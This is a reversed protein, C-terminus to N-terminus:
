EGEKERLAQKRLKFKQPKGSQARPFDKVLRVESPIMHSELGARCYALVEEENLHKESEPIVFAWVNEGGVEAPVGVVSAEQIRTHECLYAEIEAPYINQGGRIILDKKRGVIQIYGEQDIVALDGTHYWGGEELVEETVQHAHYYGLM